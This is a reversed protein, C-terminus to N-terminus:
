HSDLIGPEQSLGPTKVEGFYSDSPFDAELAPEPILDVTEAQSSVIKNDRLTMGPPLDANNAGNNFLIGFAQQDRGEAKVTVIIRSNEPTQAEQAPELSYLVSTIQDDRFGAQKLEEVAREAKTHDRFVGVISSPDTHQM